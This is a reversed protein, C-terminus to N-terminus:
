PNGGIIKEVFAVVQDFHTIIFATSPLMVSNVVLFFARMDFVGTNANKVSDYYDAMAKFQSCLAPNDFRQEIDLAEIETRLRELVVDRARIVIRTLAIQRLIFVGSLPIITLLASPFLPIRAYMLFFVALASYVSLVYASDRSVTSLYRLSPSMKPDVEYLDIHYRSLILPLLMLTFLFYEDMCMLFYGSFLAITTRLGMAGHISVQLPYQYPMIIALIVCSFFLTWATSSFKGLWRGLDLVDQPQTISDIVYDSLIRYLNLHLHSVLFIGFWFFFITLFALAIWARFVEVGDSYDLIYSTLVHVTILILFPAADGKPLRPFIRHLWKSIRTALPDYTGDALKRKLEARLTLLDATKPM